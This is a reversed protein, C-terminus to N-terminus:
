KIFQGAGIITNEEIIKGQVITANSGVFSGQKVVCDGNIMAGTSIHCFNEIIVGHEINAQTNIISHKGIKAGANITAGSLVVTGEQIVAHKSVYALPSIITAIKVNNLNNSIKIRVEATKIQGVTILFYSNFDNLGQILDDDGLIPYGLIHEGVKKTSDLIGKITFENQLEIADIVSICHGGAGILILVKNM